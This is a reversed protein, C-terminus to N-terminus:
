LVQRAPRLAPACCNQQTRNLTPITRNRRAAPAPRSNRGGRPSVVPRHRRQREWGPQPLLCGASAQLCPVGGGALARGCDGAVTVDRRRLPRPTSLSLGADWDRAPSDLVSCRSCSESGSRACHASKLELALLISNQGIFTFCLGTSEWNGQSRFGFM